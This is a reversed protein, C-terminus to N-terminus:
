NWAIVKRYRATLTTTITRNNYIRAHLPLESMDDYSLVFDFHKSSTDTLFSETAAALAATTTRKNSGDSRSVVSWHGADIEVIGRKAALDLSLSAIDETRPNEDKV